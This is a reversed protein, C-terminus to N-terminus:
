DIDALELWRTFREESGNEVGGFLVCGEACISVAM